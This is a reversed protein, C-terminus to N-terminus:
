ISCELLVGVGGAFLQACCEGVQTVAQDRMTRRTEPGGLGRQQILPQRLPTPRSLRQFPLAGPPSPMKRPALCRRNHSRAEVRGMSLDKRCCRALAYKIRDIFSRPHGWKM